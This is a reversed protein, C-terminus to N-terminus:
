YDATLYIEGTSQRKVTASIGALPVGVHQPSFESMEVQLTIRAAAISQVSPPDLPPQFAQIDNIWRRWVVGRRGLYIYEASMLINRVLRVARMMTRKARLDAPEHGPGSEDQSVGFGYCDIHYRATSKQQAVTNGTKMDFTTADFSVNVIPAVDLQDADGEAASQFDTWPSFRDTFVRLEWLRPDESAASALVQQAASEAAIITAVDELIIEAADPNTILAPLTV